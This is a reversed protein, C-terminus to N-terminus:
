NESTSQQWAQEKFSGFFIKSFAGNYEECYKYFSYLEGNKMTRGLKNKMFANFWPADVKRYKTGARDRNIKEVFKGVLEDRESRFNTEKIVYNELGLNNM